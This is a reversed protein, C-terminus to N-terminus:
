TLIMTMIILGYVKLDNEFKIMSQTTLIYDYREM